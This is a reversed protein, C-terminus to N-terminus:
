DAGRRAHLVHDQIQSNELEASVQHVYVCGFLFSVIWEGQYKRSCVYRQYLEFM